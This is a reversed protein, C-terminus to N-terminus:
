FKDLSSQYTQLIFDFPLEKEAWFFFFFCSMFNAERISATSIAEATNINVDFYANKFTFITKSLLLDM